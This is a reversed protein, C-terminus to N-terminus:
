FTGAPLPAQKVALALLSPGAARNTEMPAASVNKTWGDRADVVSMKYYPEYPIVAQTLPNGALGNAVGAPARVLYANNPIYSVIQAGSRALMARFANDIPGRAQVIYAGPDGPSQLKKPISLNM